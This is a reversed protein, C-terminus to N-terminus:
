PDKRAKAAVCMWDWPYPERMWDPPDEYETNWDYRVKDIRETQFGALQLFTMLEEKLYHKTLVGDIPVVGHGKEVADPRFRPRVAAGERLNWETLKYAVYYYSELAPVVLVLRSGKELHRHITKLMKLRTHISPTILSNVAVAADAQPLRIAPHSLDAPAFQVNPLSDYRQKAIALCEKSLDVAHVHKFNRSLVPIGHGIGCGCDLVTRGRFQPDEFFSTLIGDRDRQWVNFIENEYDEAKENWYAVDM